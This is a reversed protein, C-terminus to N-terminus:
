YRMIKKFTDIENQTKDAIEFDDIRDYECTDDIYDAEGDEFKSLADQKNEANVIYLSFHIEKANIIYTKM